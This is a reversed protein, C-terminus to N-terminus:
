KEREEGATTAAKAHINWYLTEEATQKVVFQTRKDHIEFVNEFHLSPDYSPSV